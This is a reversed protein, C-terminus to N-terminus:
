ESRRSVMARYFAVGSETVDVEPLPRAATPAADSRDISAVILWPGPDRQAVRLTDELAVPDEVRLVHEIGCARGLAEIDTGTASPTLQDGSGTGYVGNDFVVVILNSPRYRGITSLVPMGATISGDGELAIAHESPAALAVGLCMAAAYGMEMNYITAPEHRPVFFTGSTAEPGTVSAPGEGTMRVAGTAAGRTGGRGADECF